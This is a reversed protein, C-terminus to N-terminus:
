REENEADLNFQDDDDEDSSEPRPEARAAPREGRRQTNLTLIHSKNQVQSTVTSNRKTQIKLNYNIMALKAAKDAQLRNRNKTKQLAYSKHCREM